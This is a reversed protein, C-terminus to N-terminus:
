EDQLVCLVGELILLDLGDHRFQLLYEFVFEVCFKTSSKRPICVLVAFQMQLLVTPHSISQQSDLRLRIQVHVNTFIRKLMATSAKPVPVVSCASSFFSKGRM